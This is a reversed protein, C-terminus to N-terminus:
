KSKKKYELEFFDECKNCALLRIGQALLKRTWAFDAMDKKSVIYTDTHTEPCAIKKNAM